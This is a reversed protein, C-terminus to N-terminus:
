PSASPLKLSSLFLKSEKSTPHLITVKNFKKNTILSKIWPKTHPPPDSKLGFWNRQTHPESHGFSLHTVLHKLAQPTLSQHPIQYTNKIPTIHHIQSRVLQHHPKRQPCNCVSSESSSPGSGLQRSCSSM